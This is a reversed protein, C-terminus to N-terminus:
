QANPLRAKKEDLMKRLMASGAGVKAEWIDRENRLRDNEAQLREIEDALERLLHECSILQDGWRANENANAVGRAKDTLESM